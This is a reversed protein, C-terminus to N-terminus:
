AKPKSAAGKKMTKLPEQPTNGVARATISFNVIDKDEVKSRNTFVLKVDRLRDSTNLADLYATVADESLSSGRIQMPKGRDFAVGIVWADQPVMNTVLTLVDGVPQAPMLIQRTRDALTKAKDADSRANDRIKRLKASEARWKADKKDVAAQADSRDLFALAGTVVVAAAMLAALRGRGSSVKAERAAIEGPAQMGVGLTGRQALAQASTQTTRHPTDLELNGAAIVPVAEVGAAALTMSIEQALGAADLERTVVRSYLLAGHHIVDIGFGSEAPEVVVADNLNLGQAILLSGLAVPVLSEVRSGAPLSERVLDLTEQPAGFVSTLRGDLTQHSSALLDFAYGGESAPFIKGLQVQVIGRVENKSAAPLPVAKVFVSRRALAVTLPGRVGARELAAAPNEDSVASGAKTQVIAAQPSWVLVPNIERSM